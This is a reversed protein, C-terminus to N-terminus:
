SKPYTTGKTQSGKCTRALGEEKEPVGNATPDELDPNPGRGTRQGRTEGNALRGGLERSPSM